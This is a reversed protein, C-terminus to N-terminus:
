LDKGRGARSDDGHPRGALVGLKLEKGGKKGHCRCNPSTRWSNATAGPGWGTRKEQQGGVHQLPAPGYNQYGGKGTGRRKAISTGQTEESRDNREARQAMLIVQPVRKIAGTREVHRLVCPNRRLRNQHPQERIERKKPGKKAVKGPDISDITRGYSMQSRTTTSRRKLDSRRHLRIYNRGKTRQLSM